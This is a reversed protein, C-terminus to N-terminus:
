ELSKPVQRWASSVSSSRMTLFCPAWRFWKLCTQTELGQVRCHRAPLVVGLLQLVQSPDSSALRKTNCRGAGHGDGAGSSTLLPLTGSEGKQRHEAHRQMM